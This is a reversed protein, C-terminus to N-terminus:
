AAAGAPWESLSPVVGRSAAGWEALCRRAERATGDSLDNAQRWCASQRHQASSHLSSSADRKAWSATWTEGAMSFINGPSAWHGM